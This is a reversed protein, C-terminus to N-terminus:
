VSLDKEIKDSISDEAPNNQKRKRLYITVGVIAAVVVIVAVVFIGMRRKQVRRYLRQKEEM